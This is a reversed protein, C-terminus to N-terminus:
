FRFYIFPNYTHSVLLVIGYLLLVLVFLAIQAKRLHKENLFAKCLLCGGILLLVLRTEVFQLATRVGAALPKLMQGSFDPTRFLMWCFLVAMFLAVLALLKKKM